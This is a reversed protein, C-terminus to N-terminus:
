DTVILTKGDATEEMRFNINSDKLVDLLVSLRTSRPMGGTFQRNSPKGEYLVKINYWRAVQRMISQLDASKFIINGNKWALASEMDAASVAINGKAQLIAQQGPKLTNQKEGSAVRVSGEALTTTTKGEDAYSNINFHTGLVEVTQNATIVRFPLKPNHAVEFYAEGTLEVRREKSNTFTVPYKLSSAANLWVKTGDPLEIRYEGGKPTEITNYSLAATQSPNYAIRGDATYNASIGSQDKIQGQKTGSLDVKSGDSLTLIAKNSGAEVQAILDKQIGPLSQERNFYLLSGMLLAFAAAIGAVAYWIRKTKAPTTQQGGIEAKVRAYIAKLRQQEDPLASVNGQEKSLAEAILKRLTAEDDTGFLQRLQGTQEPSVKNDLFDQYLQTLSPQQNEM